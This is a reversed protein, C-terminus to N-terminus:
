RCRSGRGYCALLLDNALASFTPGADDIDLAIVGDNSLCKALLSWTALEAEVRAASKAAAEEKKALGTLQEGLAKAREDRQRACTEAREASSGGGAAASRWRAAKCGGAADLAPPLLSAQEAIRALAEDRV